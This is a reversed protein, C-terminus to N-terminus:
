VGYRRVSLNAVAGCRREAGCVMVSNMSVVPSYPIPHRNPLVELCGTDPCVGRSLADGQASIRWLVVGYRLLVVGSASMRAMMWM